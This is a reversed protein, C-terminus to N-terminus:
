VKKIPTPGTQQALYRLGNSHVMPSYSKVFDEEVEMLNRERTDWINTMMPMTSADLVVVYPLQVSLVMNPRPAEYAAGLITALQDLQAIDNSPDWSATEKTKTSHIMIWMGRTLEGPTLM